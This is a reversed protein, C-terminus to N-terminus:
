LSEPYALQGNSITGNELNVGIAKGATVPEFGTPAGNKLFKTLVAKAEVRM